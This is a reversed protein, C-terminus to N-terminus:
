GQGDSSLAKAKDILEVWSRSIEQVELVGYKKWLREMANTFDFYLRVRKENADPDRLRDVEQTLHAVRESLLGWNYPETDETAM